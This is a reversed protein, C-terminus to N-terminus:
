PRGNMFTKHHCGSGTVITCNNSHFLPLFFILTTTTAHNRGAATPHERHVGFVRANDGGDVSFRQSFIGRRLPSHISSCCYQSFIYVICSAFGKRGGPAPQVPSLTSLQKAPIHCTHYYSLIANDQPPDAAFTLLCGLGRHVATSLGLLFLIRCFRNIFCVM